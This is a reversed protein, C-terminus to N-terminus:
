LGSQDLIKSSIATRLPQQGLIQAIVKHPNPAIPPLNPNNKMRIRRIKEEVTEDNFQSFASESIM